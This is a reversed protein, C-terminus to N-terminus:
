AVFPIGLSYQKCNFTFNNREVEQELLMNKIKQFLSNNRIEITIIEDDKTMVDIYHVPITVIFNENITDQNFNSLISVDINEDYVNTVAGTINIKEPIFLKKIFSWNRGLLMGGLVGLIYFLTTLILNLEQKM